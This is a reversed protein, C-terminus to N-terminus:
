CQHFTQANLIWISLVYLDGEEELQAGNLHKIYLFYCRHQGLFGVTYDSQTILVPAFDVVVM